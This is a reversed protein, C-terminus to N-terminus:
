PGNRNFVPFYIFEPVELSFDLTTATNTIIEVPYVTAPLYGNASATVTYTGSVLTTTYSGGALVPFVGRYGQANETTIMAEQLTAGSGFETVSGGLTGLGDRIRCGALHAYTAVAGKIYENFYPIDQLSAYSNATTHYNPNFDGDFDEIGLIATYGWDWFSAHDSRDTGNSIIEPDLNLSYTDVVDVFLQALELTRTLGSNAHLEVTPSSGATNWAIMDLNLVGLINEGQAASRQAYAGSGLLGQEEGTWFVFRLTCDWHYESLIDAAVLVGVSGSANDDMGPAVAGYPLNDLHAGVIFIDDPNSFGTRQGIVNPPYNSNWNHYEVELGLDEM